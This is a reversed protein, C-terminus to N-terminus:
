TPKYNIPVMWSETGAPVRISFRIFATVTRTLCAPYKVVTMCIM